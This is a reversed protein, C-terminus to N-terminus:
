SFVGEGNVGVVGMGLAVTIRGVSVWAESIVAAVSVAGSSVGSDTPSVKVGQGV